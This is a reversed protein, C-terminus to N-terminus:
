VVVLLRDNVMNIGKQILPMGGDGFMTRSRVTHLSVLSINYLGNPGQDRSGRTRSAILQAEHASRGFGFRCVYTKWEYGKWATGKGM